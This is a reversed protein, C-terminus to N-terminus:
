FTVTATVTDTYTGSPVAGGNTNTYGHITFVQAAATATGNFVHSSGGTGDGLLGSGSAASYLAYGVYNGGLVMKSAGYTSSNAGADLDVVIPGQGSCTVTVSGASSENYATAADAHTGFDVNTASISCSKQIVIKATFTTTQPSTLTSAGATGIALSAAALALVILKRNMPTGSELHMTKAPQNHLPASLLVDM